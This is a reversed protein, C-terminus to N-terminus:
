MVKVNSKKQEKLSKINGRRKSIKCWLAKKKKLNIKKM